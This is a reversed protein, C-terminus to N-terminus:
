PGPLFTDRGVGEIEDLRTPFYISLYIPYRLLYSIEIIERGGKGRGCPYAFCGYVGALLLLRM